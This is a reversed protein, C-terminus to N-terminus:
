CMDARWTRGGVTHSECLLVQKVRSVRAILKTLTARLDRM